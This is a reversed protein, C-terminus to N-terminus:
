GWYDDRRELTWQSNVIQETEFYVPRNRKAESAVTDESFTEADFMFLTGWVSTEEGVVFQEFVIEVTYDDIKTCQDELVNTLLETAGPRNNARYITFLVDDANFESGDAFTM